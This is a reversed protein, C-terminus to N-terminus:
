VRFGLGLGYGGSVLGLKTFLMLTYCLLEKQLLYESM